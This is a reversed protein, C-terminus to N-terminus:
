DAPIGLLRDLVQRRFDIDPADVLSAAVVDAARVHIRKGQIALAIENGPVAGDLHAVVLAGINHVQNCAIGLPKPEVRRLRHACPRPFLEYRGAKRMITALFFVDLPGLDAHHIYVVAQRWADLTAGDLLQCDDLLYLLRQSDIGTATGKAKLKRDDAGAGRVSGLHDPPKGIDLLVARCEELDRRAPRDVEKWEVLVAHCDLTHPRKGMEHGAFPLPANSAVGVSVVHHIRPHRTRLRQSAPGFWKLLRAPSHLAEAIGTFDLRNQIGVADFAM